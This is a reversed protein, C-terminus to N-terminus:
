PFFHTLFLYLFLPSLLMSDSLSLFIFHHCLYICTPSLCLSPQPSFCSDSLVPLCLCPILLIFLFPSPFVCLPLILSLHVCFFLSLCLFMATLLCDRNCTCVCPFALVLLDWCVSIDGSFVIEWVCEGVM